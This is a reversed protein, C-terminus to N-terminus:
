VYIPQSQDPPRTPEDGGLLRVHGTALEYIAGYAHSLAHGLEDGEPISNPKM